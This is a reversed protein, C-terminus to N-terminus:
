ELDLLLGAVREADRDVRHERRAAGSWDGPRALDGHVQRALEGVLRQRGDALREAPAVVRRDEVGAPARGLAHGLIGLGVFGDAAKGLAQTVVFSDPAGSLSRLNM